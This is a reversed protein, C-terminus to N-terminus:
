LWIPIGPLALVLRGPNAFTHLSHNIGVPMSSSITFLECM